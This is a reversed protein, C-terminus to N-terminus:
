RSPRDSLVPVRGTKGLFELFEEDSLEVRNEGEAYVRVYMARARDNLWSVLQAAAHPDADELAELPTKGLPVRALM